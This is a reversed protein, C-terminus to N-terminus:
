YYRFWYIEGNYECSSYDVKLNEATTEWDIVIYFPLDSSVDGIDECLEKMADVFYSDKIMQEGNEFEPIESKLDELIDIEDQLNKIQEELSEIESLEVEDETDSSLLDLESQVDEQDSLLEELKDNLDRTDIIDEMNISTQTIVRNKPGDM